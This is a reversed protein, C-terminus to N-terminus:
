RPLSGHLPLHDLGIATYHVQCEPIRVYIRRSKQGTMPNRYRFVWRPAGPSTGEFDLIFSGNVYEWPADAAKSMFSDAVSRAKAYSLKGIRLYQVPYAAFYEILRYAPVVFVVAVLVFIAVVLKEKKSM